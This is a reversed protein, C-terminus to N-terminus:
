LLGSRGAAAKSFIWSALSIGLALAVWGAQELPRLMSASLHITPMSIAKASHIGVRVLEFTGWGLVGSVLVIGPVARKWPFPIPPPVAAEEAIREMVSSVFGSSPVLEEETALIRDIKKNTKGPGFTM